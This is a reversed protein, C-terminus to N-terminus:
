DPRGPTAAPAPLSTLIHDLADRFEEIPKAGALRQELRVTDGTVLRGLFFTPTGTVGLSEAMKQDRHIAELAAGGACGTFTPVDLGIAQAMQAMDITSPIPRGFLWDHAEWFRGQRRGCEAGRAADLASPHRRELPVHFYFLKVRSPRVYEADLLPLTELAFRKCFPCEFDGFM